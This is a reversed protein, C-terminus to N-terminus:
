VHVAAGGRLNPFATGRGRPRGGGAALVGGGGTVPPAPAGVVRGMPVVGAGRSGLRRRLEIAVWGSHSASVPVFEELGAADVVALADRTMEDVGFDDHADGSTGHGRWDLRVVRRHRAAVPVFADYRGRSWCGGTLCLLPPGGSGEDEYDIRIGDAFTTAMTVRREFGAHRPARGARRIGLDAAPVGVAPARPADPLGRGAREARRRGCSLFQRRSREIVVPPCGRAPTAAAPLAAPAGHRRGRGG